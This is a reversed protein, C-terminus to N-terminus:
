KGGRLKTVILDREFEQAGAEVTTAQGPLNAGGALAVDGNGDTALGQVAPSEGWDLAEKWRPKDTADLEVVLVQEYGFKLANESTHLTEGDFTQGEYFM